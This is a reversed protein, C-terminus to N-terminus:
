TNLCSHALCHKTRYLFLVFSFTFVDEAWTASWRWYLSPVLSLCIYLISSPFLRYQNVRSKNIRSWNRICCLRWDKIDRTSKMIVYKNVMCWLSCECFCANEEKTLLIPFALRWQENRYLNSTTFFFLM